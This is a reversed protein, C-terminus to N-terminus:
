RCGGAIELHRPPRLLRGFARLPGWYLVLRAFLSILRGSSYRSGRSPVGEAGAEYFVAAARAGSAFLMASLYPFSVPQALARRLLGGDIARFSTVPVDRPKGLWLTFLLNNLATGLRRLPHRLLTRSRRAVPTRPRQPAGYVLDAHDLAAVMTPILVPPHAGDDDITVVVAGRAAALGIFSAYQQGRNKALCFATVSPNAAALARVRTQEDEPSGDDVLIVERTYTATAALLRDIVASLTDVGRYTPIVISLYPVSSEAM